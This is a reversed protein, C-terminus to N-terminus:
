RLKFRVPLDWSTAVPRGDRMAPRGQWTRVASVAAADLIPYGSSRVVDVSTVRGDEDVRLRLRVVGERRLSRAQEPYRPPLNGTFDPATAPSDGIVSTRQATSPPRIPSSESDRLLQNEALLNATPADSSEAIQRTLHM